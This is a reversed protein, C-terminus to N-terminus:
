EKLLIQELVRLQTELRADVSGIETDIVCGCDTVLDDEVVEIEKSEGLMAYLQGRNERLYAVRSPHVRIRLQRQYKLAQMANHIIDLLLGPDTELTRGVVREAVKLSLRVIDKEAGRLMNQYTQKFHTITETLNRLGAEYGEEYAKGTVSEAEAQAKAVIAEAQAKADALIREATDMAQVVDGKLVPTDGGFGTRTPNPDPLSDPLGGKIIQKSM